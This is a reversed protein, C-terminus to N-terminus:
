RPDRFIRRFPLTLALVPWLMVLFPFAVAIDWREDKDPSKDGRFWLATVVIGIAAYLYMGWPARSLLCLFLSAMAGVAM